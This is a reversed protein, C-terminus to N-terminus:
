VGNSSVKMSGIIITVAIAVIILMVLIWAPIWGMVTFTIFAFVSIVVGVVTSMKITDTTFGIVVFGGIIVLITFLVILYKTTDSLGCGFLNTCLGTSPSQVNNLGLGNICINYDYYNTLEPTNSNQNYTRVIRCGTSTYQCPLYEYNGKLTTTFPTPTTFTKVEVNQLTTNIAQIYLTNVDMGNFINPRTSKITDQVRNFTYTMTYTGSSFDITYLIILNELDDYTNVSYDTYILNMMNDYISLEKNTSNRWVYITDISNGISDKLTINTYQLNAPTLTLKVTGDTGITNFTYTTENMIITNLNTNIIPVEKYDCTRSSYTTMSPTNTSFKQIHVFNKTNVTLRKNQSDLTYSTIDSSQSYPTVTFATNNSLGGYTPTHCYGNSCIQGINCGWGNSWELCSDTDYNGCIRFTNIDTCEQYGIINCDNTCGGAQTCLGQSFFTHTPYKNYLEQINSNNCNAYPINFISIIPNVSCAQAIYSTLFGYPSVIQEIYYLYGTNNIESCKFDIGLTKQSPTYTTECSNFTSAFTEGTTNDTVLNICGNSCYSTSNSDVINCYINNNLTFVNNCLTNSDVCLPTTYNYEFPVTYNYGTDYRAFINKGVIYFAKDTMSYESDYITANTLTINYQSLNGVYNCEGNIYEILLANNGIKGTILCENINSCSIDYIVEGVQNLLPTCTTITNLNIPAYGNKSATVNGKFVNNGDTIMYYDKPVDIIGRNMESPTFYTSFNGKVGTVEDIYFSTTYTAKSNINTTPNINELINSTTNFLKQTNDFNKRIIGLYDTESTGYYTNNEYIGTSSIDNIGTISPYNGFYATISTLASTYGFLDSTKSWTYLQIDRSKTTYYPYPNYNPYSDSPHIYYGKTSYFKINKYNMDTGLNNIPLNGTLMVDNRGLAQTQSDYHLISINTGYIGDCENSVCSIYINNESISLGRGTITSLINTTSASVNTVTILFIIISLISITKSKM